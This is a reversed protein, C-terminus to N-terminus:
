VSMRCCMMMELIICGTSWVDNETDLRGELVEPAMLVKQDENIRIKFKVEDKFFMPITFDSVVFSLDEMMLISTAKLNGHIVNKSHMYILVDVMQGLFNKIVMERLKEKRQRKEQIVVGLNGVHGCEMVLCVSLAAEEKNWAVFIEKYKCINEHQLDLLVMAERLAKNAMAEDMCEVMKILVTTNDKTHKMMKLVGHADQSVIELFEYNEM